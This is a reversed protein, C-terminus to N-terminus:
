AEFCNNCQVAQGAKLALINCHVLAQVAAAREASSISAASRDHLSRALGQGQEGASDVMM